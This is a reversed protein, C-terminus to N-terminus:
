LLGRATTLAEDPSEAWHAVPSAHTWTDYVSRLKGYSNDLVVHPIDQLLALLHGHLRDTVVVRGRALIACGRDVWREALPDFTPALLRGSWRASGPRREALDTLTQNLTRQLRAVLPWAPEGPVPALWDVVELAGAEPAPTVYGSAEPDTRALWLVDVTPDIQRPRTGLAFALDPCVESPVDFHERAYARSQPERPLLTFDDHAECLAALRDRNVPDAFHISQPLQITRRDPVDALLRERTAAQRAPYLDGFNAGGHILVVGDAGLARRLAIPEYSAWSAEYAVEVRARALAAKEGLWLAPDGANAHNPFNVLAVRTGPSLLSGFVRDIEASWETM